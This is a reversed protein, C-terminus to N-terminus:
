EEGPAPSTLHPGKEEEPAPSTLDPGKEFVEPLHSVLTNYWAIIKRRDSLYVRDRDYDPVIEAFFDTVAVESATKPDIELSNGYKEHIVTLVDALATAGEKNDTYVSIEKLISVRSNAGVVSRSRAEDLSEVIVGSRTPKIIRFLGGKGSIHAVEKLLEM